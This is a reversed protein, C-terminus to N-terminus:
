EDSNTEKRIADANLLITSMENISTMCVQNIENNITIDNLTKNQTFSARSLCDADINEIGKKFEVEYDFDSLFTTFRLLHWSTM